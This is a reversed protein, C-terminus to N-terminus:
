IQYMIMLANADELLEIRHEFKLGDVCYRQTADFAVEQVRQSMDNQM